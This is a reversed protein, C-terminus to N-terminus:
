RKVSLTAEKSFISCAQLCLVTERSSAGEWSLFIGLEPINMTRPLEHEADVFVGLSCSSDAGGAWALCAVCSPAGIGNPIHTRLQTPSRDQNLLLPYCVLTVTTSPIPGSGTRRLQCIYGPARPIRGPQELFLIPNKPRGRLPTAEKSRSLPLSRPM